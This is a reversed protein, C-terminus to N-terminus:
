ADVTTPGTVTLSLSGMVCDPCERTVTTVDSDGDDDGVNPKTFDFKGPAAFLIGTDGRDVDTLEYRGDSGTATFSVPGTVLVGAVGPESPDQRGDRDLDNWVRGSVTAADSGVVIVDATQSASSNGVGISAILSDFAGAGPEVNVTMTLTVTDALASATCDAGSPAFSGGGFDQRPRVTCDFGPASASLASLRDSNLDLTIGVSGDTVPQDTHATADITVPDGPRLRDPATIEIDLGSPTGAIHVDKSATTPDDNGLSLSAQITGPLDDGPGVAVTVQVSGDSFSSMGTCTVDQPSTVSCVLGTAEVSVANLRQPFMVDLFVWVDDPVPAPTHVDVIVTSQEGPSFEDPSTIQVTPGADDAFAPSATLPSSLTLATALVLLRGASRWSM